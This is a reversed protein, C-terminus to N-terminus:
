PMHVDLVPTALNMGQLQEVVHGVAGNTGTVVLVKSSNIISAEAWEGNSSGEWDRQLSHIEDLILQM